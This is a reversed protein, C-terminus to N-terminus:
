CRIKCWQVLKKRKAENKQYKLINYLPTNKVYKTTANLNAGKNILPKVKNVGIAYFIPTKDNNDKINVNVGKNILLKLISVDVDNGDAECAYHIPALGYVDKLNVNLLLKVIIWHYQM